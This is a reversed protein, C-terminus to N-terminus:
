TVRLEHTLWCTIYLRVAILQLWLKWRYELFIFIFFFFQFFSKPSVCCFCSSVMVFYGRVIYINWVLYSGIDQWIVRMGLLYICEKTFSTTHLKLRRPLCIAVNYANRAFAGTAGHWFFHVSFFASNGAFVKAGM